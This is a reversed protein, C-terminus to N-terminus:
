KSGSGSGKCFLGVVEPNNKVCQNVEEAIAKVGRMVIDKPEDHESAIEVMPDILSIIEDIRCAKLSKSLDFHAVSIMSHKCIKDKRWRDIVYKEPIPDM